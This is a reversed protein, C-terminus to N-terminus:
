GHRLARLLPQKLRQGARHCVLLQVHQVLRLHAKAVARQHPDLRQNAPVVRLQTRDLRRAEHRDGFLM